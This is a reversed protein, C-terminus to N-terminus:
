PTHFLNSVEYAVMEKETNRRTRKYIVRSVSKGPLQQPRILFKEGTSLMGGRSEM